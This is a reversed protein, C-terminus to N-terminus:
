LNATDAAVKSNPIYRIITQSVIRPIDVKTLEITTDSTKWTVKDAAKFLPEGYKQTLLQALNKFSSDAIVSSKNENSAVNTQVLKDQSDFLFTVTYPRGGISVNDIKAKGWSNKFQEPKILVARGGEAEVVQDPSMGWVTKSYGEGGALAFTSILLFSISLLLRKMM